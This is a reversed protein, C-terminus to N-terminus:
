SMLANQRVVRWRIDPTHNSLLANINKDYLAKIRDDILKGITAASTREETDSQTEQGFYVQVEILKDGGFRFWETNRFKRGTKMECEYQVFAENGNEFLKEIQFNRINESNPWCRKFYETRDIRDRLTRRAFDDLPSTFTFDDSM